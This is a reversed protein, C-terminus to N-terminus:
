ELLHMIAERSAQEVADILNKRLEPSGQCLEYTTTIREMCQHVRVPLRRWTELFDNIPLVLSKLEEDNTGSLYRNLMRQHYKHCKFPPAATEWKRFSSWSVHYFQGLQRYSLGFERRKQELCQQIEKTIICDDGIQNTM